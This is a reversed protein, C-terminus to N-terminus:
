NPKNSHINRLLFVTAAGIYNLLLMIIHASITTAAPIGTQGYLIVAAGEKIGLGSMTIPILSILMTAASISLVTLPNTNQGLSLFILYTVIATLGWKLLTIALNAAVAGTKRYLLHNTTETFGSFIKQYKGLIRRIINKGPTTLVAAVAIATAATTLLTLMIAQKTEMFIFFGTFALACLTIVTTIKDIIAVAMAQGTTLHKRSLYVFTFEGVKGPIILGFAWSTIYYNWMDKMGINTGIADTLIKINYAGIYLGLTFLATIPLMLLLNTKAITNTTQSIGAKYLLLGLIAMGLLIKAATSLNM